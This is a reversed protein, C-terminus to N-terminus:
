QVDLVAGVGAILEVKVFDFLVALLHTSHLAVVIVPYHGGGYENPYAVIMGQGGYFFFVVRAFFLGTDNGFRAQLFIINTSFLNCYFRSVGDRKGM